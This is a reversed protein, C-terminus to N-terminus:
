CWRGDRSTTAKLIAGIVAKMTSLREVCEAERERQLFSFFTFHTCINHASFLLHGLLIILRFVCVMTRASRVKKAASKKMAALQRAAAANEAAAARQAKADAKTSALDSAARERAEVSMCEAHAGTLDALQTELGAIAAGCAHPGHHENVAALEAMLERVREVGGTDRLRQLQATLAAIAGACPKHATVADTLAATVQQLMSNKKL